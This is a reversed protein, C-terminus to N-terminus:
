ITPELISLAVHLYRKNVILLAHHHMLADRNAPTTNLQFARLAGLSCRKPLITLQSKEFVDSIEPNM